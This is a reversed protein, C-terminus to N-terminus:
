GRRSFFNRLRTVPPKRQINERAELAELYDNVYKAMRTGGVPLNRFLCAAAKKLNEDESALAVLAYAVAYPFQLSSTVNVPAIMLLLDRASGIRNARLHAHVILLQADPDGAAVADSLIREAEDYDGHDILIAAPHQPHESNTTRELVSKAASFDEEDKTIDWRLITAAARFDEYGGETTLDTIVSDIRRLAEDREGSDALQTALELEALRREYEERSTSSAIRLLHTQKHAPLNMVRVALILALPDKLSELDGLTEMEEVATLYDGNVFSWQAALATIRISLEPVGIVKAIHRLQPLFSDSHGNAMLAEGLKRVHATLASVDVEVFMRHLEPAVHRTPSTHQKVWIVYQALQARALQEFRASNCLAIAEDIERTMNGKWNPMDLQQKCCEAFRRPGGCFCTDLPDPEWLRKIRKGEPSYTTGQIQWVDIVPKLYYPYGEIEVTDNLKIGGFPGRTFPTIYSKLIGQRTAVLVSLAEGRGPVHRADGFHAKVAADDPPLMWVENVDIIADGGESEIYRAIMRMLLHKETRNSALLVVQHWKGRGNRIFAMRSLVKDKRLIRKATFLVKEAFILPDSMQWDAMRSMQHLGYRKAAITPDVGPSVMRVMEIEQGTQLRFSRSRRESDVIMCLLTGSPHYTSRFHPHPENSSICGTEGLKIHADLVLDSLLGYGQALADLIERGRLDPVSWRREIVIAAHELDGPLLHTNSVLELLPVNRLILSPPIDPPISSEVLVDDRWTVLKVVATSSTELVGQKVVINRAEKLWGLIPDAKMRDQWRKYWDEFQTFSHKESQLIFTINRLAQITANLNAQFLDPQHYQELTQHWLLHAEVLRRHTKPLPCRSYDISLIDSKTRSQVM